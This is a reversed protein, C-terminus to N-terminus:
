QRLANEVAKKLVTSSNTAGSIADIDIKQEAVIEDIVTEAAQGRENKHELIEINTIIKEQVTVKVKAYIFDVNCEGVYTGDAIKTVDINQFTIDSVAQKYDSVRKLYFALCIITILIVASAIFLVTRKKTRKM